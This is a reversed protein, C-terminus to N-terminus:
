RLKSIDLPKMGYDTSESYIAYRLADLCDDHKEIPVGSNKNWLYQYVEDLMKDVREKVFFLSDEKFGKAVMEIGSLVSKNGNMANFGENQFRVLHEPRASDVWFNIRSGYIETIKRAEAVWYDIDKHQEAKEYVVYRNGSRTEGVVILSGFHEYGWDVGAYYKVIDDVPVDDEAILHIDKDFDSYIAGEGITWLGYIARDTFVGTPTTSKINEKYRESLFTNDDLTFQFDIIESSPNDIYHKKLWHEPQDPNTDCLIRAGRGSCRAIIESFVEENCLSAENIYAGYATLGRINGLGSITGTYAQVIKVGMFDFMGYKDFKFTVGYKETIEHLINTYITKSSVGGVIYMPNQVGEEDALRKIRRLENIFIDNNLVTKGSRKAGHNLLLFWDEQRTRKLVEIQKETYLRRLKTLRM